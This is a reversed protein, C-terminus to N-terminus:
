YRARFQTQMEEYQKSIEQVIKTDGALNDPHYIKMLDKYRKKLALENTVGRFLLSCDKDTIASDHLISSEFERVKYNFEDRENALNAAEKELLKWKMEFLQRERELKQEEFAVKREFDEMDWQLQRRMKELELRERKLEEKEREFEVTDQFLWQNVVEQEKEASYVPQDM